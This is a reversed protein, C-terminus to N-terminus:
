VRANSGSLSAYSGSGGLLPSLIEGVITIQAQTEYSQNFGAYEVSVSGAIAVRKYKSPTYDVTLSGPVQLQRLQAEYTANDVEVPVSESSVARGYPDYVAYRPWERDQADRDGVKYGKFLSRYTNDLWESAVLGAADVEADDDYASVDRGRAEHYIRFGAASGYITM